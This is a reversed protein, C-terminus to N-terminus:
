FVAALLVGDCENLVNGFAFVELRGQTPQAVIKGVNDVGHRRYQYRYVTVAFYGLPITLRLFYGSQTQRFRM